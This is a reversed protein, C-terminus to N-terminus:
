PVEAVANRVSLTPVPVDDPCDPTSSRTCRCPTSLFKRDPGKGDIRILSGGEYTGAMSGPTFAGCSTSADACGQFSFAYDRIELGAVDWAVADVSGRWDTEEDDSRRLFVKTDNILAVGGGPDAPSSVFCEDPDIPTGRWDTAFLL